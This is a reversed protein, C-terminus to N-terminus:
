NGAFRAIESMAARWKMYAAVSLDLNLSLCPMVDKGRLRSDLARHKMRSTGNQIGAQAPCVCKRAFPSHRHTTHSVLM